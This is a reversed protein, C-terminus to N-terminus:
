RSPRGLGEYGIALFIQNDQADSTDRERDQWTYRYGGRLYTTRSMMWRMALEGRLYDRDGIQGVEGISRDRVYRAAGMFGLRQTIDRDYQVRLQDSESKGGRGTPTSWRGVTARWRSVEGERYATMSGGWTSVSEAVPVPDYTIDDEEFSVEADIGSTESWRHTYGIVGGYADTENLGEKADYQSVYGGFRLNSNPDLSGSAFLDARGYDYDVRDQVAQDSYRVGEYFLEGGASWRESLRYTYSPAFNLRQRSDDGGSSGSEPTTPDDPNVPDFEADAQDAFFSDRRDYRGTLLFDSRESRYRSRLDLGLELPEFERDAFKQLRAHPRISSESRPTDVGILAAADLVGGYTEADSPPDPDLDINDHFEVRLEARPQVFTDAAESTGALFALALTAAAVQGIRGDHNADSGRAHSM